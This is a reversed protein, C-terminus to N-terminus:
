FPYINDLIRSLWGPRQKDTLVGNGYVEVQAEAMSNSTVSNDAAIDRQRVLGRVVLIQTEDNVRVRRAGEVQFVRGPLVRVIRAAVTASFNSENKTEGNASFDTTYSGKMKPNGLADMGLPQGLLGFVGEKPFAEVGIDVSNEKKATTDAKHTASSNEAVRVLVIDGVRRARNDDYLFEAQSPQFLSGPNQQPAIDEVVPESLLPMPDPDHRSACGAVLWAAALFTIIGYKM